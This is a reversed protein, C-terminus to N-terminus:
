SWSRECDYSLSPLAQSKYLSLAMSEAPGNPAVKEGLSSSQVLNEQKGLMGYSGHTQNCNCSALDFLIHMM